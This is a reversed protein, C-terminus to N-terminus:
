AIAKEIAVPTTGIFGSITMLHLSFSGFAYVIYLLFLETAGYIDRSVAIFFTVSVIKVGYSIAAARVLSPLGYPQHRLIVLLLVFSAAIVAGLINITDNIIKPSNIVPQQFLVDFGLTGLCIIGMMTLFPYLISGRGFFRFVVLVTTVLAALLAYSQVPGITDKPFACSVSLFNATCAFGYIKPVLAATVLTSVSYFAFVILLSAILRLQYTM